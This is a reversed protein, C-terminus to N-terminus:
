LGARSIIDDGANALGLARDGVIERLQEVTVAQRNQGLSVSNADEYTAEFIEPKCPYFEGAVGKIIWDGETAIHRAQGQSGDELTYITMEGKASVHRAKTQGGAADGLWVLLEASAPYIYQMAEIVVPKKRYKNAVAM